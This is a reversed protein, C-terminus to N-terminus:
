PAEHPVIGNGSRQLSQCTACSARYTTHIPRIKDDYSTQYKRGAHEGVRKVYESFTINDDAVNRVSQPDRVYNKIDQVRGWIGMIIAEPKDYKLGYADSRM